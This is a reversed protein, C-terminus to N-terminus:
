GEGMFLVGDWGDRMALMADKGFWHKAGETRGAQSLELASPWHERPGNLRDRISRVLAKHEPTKAGHDAHRAWESISHHAGQTSAFDYGAAAWAYQGKDTAFVTVHSAHMQRYSAYANENFDHAVGHGQHREDIDLAAHHVHVIGDKERITRIFTGSKEGNQDTFHGQVRVAREGGKMPLVYARDVTSDLQHEGAGFSGGYVKTGNVRLTDPSGDGMFEDMSTFGAGRGGHSSQDHQGGLHFVYSSAVVYKPSGGSLFMLAEDYTMGRNLEAEQEPTLFVIAGPEPTGPAGTIEQVTM